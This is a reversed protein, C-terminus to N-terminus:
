RQPILYCPEEGARLTVTGKSAPVEERSRGYLDSLIVPSGRVSVRVPVPDLWPQWLKSRGKSLDNRYTWVVTVNPGKPNGLRYAFVGLQDSYEILEANVPTVRRYDVDRIHNGLVSVAVWYLTPTNRYLWGQHLYAYTRSVGEAMLMVMGAVFEAAGRFESVKRWGERSIWPFRDDPVGAQRYHQDVEEQRPIRGQQRPFTDIGCESNHIPHKYNLREVPSRLMAAHKPLNNVPSKIQYSHMEEYFHGSVVDIYELIGAAVVDEVFAEHHGASVCIGGVEIPPSAKDAVERFIKAMEVLRSYSGQYRQFTNAENWLEWGALTGSGDDYRNRMAELYTRLYELDDPPYATANRSWEMQVKGRSTTWVPAGDSATLMKMCASKAASYARDLPAWRYVGPEPNLDPWMAFYRCWKFGPLPVPDKDTIHIALPWDDKLLASEAAPAYAFYREVSECGPLSFVCRYSGNKVDPCFQYTNEGNMGPEVIHDKRSGDILDHVQCRLEVADAKATVAFQVPCAPSFANHPEPTEIQFSSEPSSSPNM